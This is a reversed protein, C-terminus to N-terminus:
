RVSDFLRLADLAIVMKSKPLIRHRRGIWRSVARHNRAIMSTEWLQIALKM